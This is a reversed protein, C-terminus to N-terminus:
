GIVRFRSFSSGSVACIGPGVAASSIDGVLAISVNLRKAMCYPGSAPTTFPQLTNPFCFFPDYRSLMHSM